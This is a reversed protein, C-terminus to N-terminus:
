KIKERFISLNLKTEKELYDIKEKTIRNFSFYLKIKNIINPNLHYADTKKIKNIFEETSKSYYHEIYYYEYDSKKTFISDIKQRKGFGDCNVLSHSLTHICHINLSNKHGRIISKIQQKGGFSSNRANPEKEPFRERITRNDYYLLDNDTHFVWNLQIKECKKFRENFLFSKISNFDKLYIFEDIDYYIFWDYSANNKKYCDKYSHLQPSKFGRYNIIDVFGSNIYDNIVYEFKEGNLDNNDYLFIKDVEKNKYFEVFERIYKNEDKGITCLCIKHTFNIKTPFSIIIILIILIMFSVKYYNYNLAHKEENTFDPYLFEQKEM